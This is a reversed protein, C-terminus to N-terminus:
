RAIHVELISEVLPTDLHTSRVGTSGPGPLAPANARGPNLKVPFARRLRPPDKRCLRYVHIPAHKSGRCSIALMATAFLIVIVSSKM